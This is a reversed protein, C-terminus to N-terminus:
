KWLVDVTIRRIYFNECLILFFFIEFVIKKEEKKALLKIDLLYCQLMFIICLLLHHFGFVTLTSHWDGKLMHIFIQIWIVPPPPAKINDTTTPPPPAKINDVAVIPPPPAKINDVVIPPPPAKIHDIIHPNRAESNMLHALLIIIFFTLSLRSKKHWSEQCRFNPYGLYTYCTLRNIIYCLVYFKISLLIFSFQHM